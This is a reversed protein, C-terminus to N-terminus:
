NEALCMSSDEALTIISAASHSSDSGDVPFVTDYNKQLLGAFGGRHMPYVEVIASVADLYSGGGRAIDAAVQVKNEELFRELRQQRSLGSFIMDSFYNVITTTTSTLTTILMVTPFNLAASVQFPLLILVIVIALLIKKM